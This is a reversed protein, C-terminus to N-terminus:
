VLPDAEIREWATPRPPSELPAKPSIMFGKTEVCAQILAFFDDYSLRLLLLMVVPNSVVDPLVDRPASLHQTLETLVAQTYQYALKMFVPYPEQLYTLNGAMDYWITEHWL